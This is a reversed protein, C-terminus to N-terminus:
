YEQAVDTQQFLRGTLKRRGSDSTETVTLGHINIVSVNVEKVELVDGSSVSFTTTERGRSNRSAIQAGNKLVVVSGGDWSQGWDLEANGSTAFTYSLTLDSPHMFGCYSTSPVDTCFPASPTNLFERGFEAGSFSWGNSMMASKSSFDSASVVGGVSNGPQSEDTVGPQSEDTVGNPIITLRHINIVSTNIEKIKLVDGANVQFDTTMSGRANLSDILIDNKLVVVSGGFWSHGWEFKVMGSVPFTYSLVLEGPWAFGCYSTLPVNQCFGSPLPLFDFNTTGTFTWGSNIMAQKSSFDDVVIPSTMQDTPNQTPSATPELTPQMTPAISPQATPKLTPEATPSLTGLMAAVTPELTPQGTPSSTSIGGSTPCIAPGYISSFTGSTIVPTDRLIANADQIHCGGDTPWFTFFACGSVGACRAQCAFSSTEVSRSQGVMDMGDWESSGPTTYFKNSPSVSETFCNEEKTCYVVGSGKSAIFSKRTFLRCSDSRIERALDFGKCQSNSECLAKCADVTRDSSTALVVADSQGELCTYGPVNQLTLAEEKNRYIAIRNSDGLRRNKNDFDFECENDPVRQSENPLTHILRCNARGAIGFAQPSEFGCWPHSVGSRELRHNLGVICCDEVTERPGWNFDVVNASDYVYCGQYEIADQMAQDMASSDELTNPWEELLTPQNQPWNVQADPTHYLEMKTITGLSAPLNLAVTELWTSPGSARLLYTTDIGGQTVKLSFDCGAHPCYIRGADARDAASNADFSRIRDSTYPGIPPYVMSSSRTQSVLSISVMVTYIELGSEIPLQVGEVFNFTKTYAGTNDDWKRWGLGPVNVTLTEELYNQMRHVEYDSFHRFLFGQPQDGNGGGQMPSSRYAFDTPTDGNIDRGAPRCGEQPTCKPAIYTRSPMDFAWTPGVHAINVPAAIGHMPGSNPNNRDGRLHPLGFAHGLEHHLIGGGVHMFGVGQLGLAQGGAPVGMINVYTLGVRGQNGSAKAFADVWKLAAGQEGDFHRKARFVFEAESSVRLPTKEGPATTYGPMVLDLFKLDRVRTVELGEVPWKSALERDYGSAYDAHGHARGFYRVDFMTMKMKNPAGVAPSFLSSRTSGAFIEFELGPKVFEKPIIVTFSDMDTHEVLGPRGDWTNPLATPGSLQLDITSGDKSNTLTVTVTPALGHCQCNTLRNNLSPAIVQVKLLAPRNSVLKLYPSDMALVHTQALFVAEILPHTAVVESITQCEQGESICEQITPSASLPCAGEGPQCDTTSSPCDAGNGSKPVTV